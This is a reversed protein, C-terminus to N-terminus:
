PVARQPQTEANQRRTVASITSIAARRFDARLLLRNLQLAFMALSTQEGIQVRRLYFPHTGPSNVGWETTAASKFGGKALIALAAEGCEEQKGFPFAFHRVPADLREELLRKSELIEWEMEARSLRSIVPHTMTHAGFSVGGRQMARVQEWTLMRERLEDQPLAVRSELDVCCQKRREPSAGRLFTIIEVAAQMRAAFSQLSFVKPEDLQIEFTDGPAVRLALFVRDYWAVEGSEVCKGTLFVTAPVAYKQLVPFAETYLGRYGDDFTIAVAPEVTRPGEMEEMLQDLSILRFRKKLYRMQAEFLDTPLQSYLPVGGIGVRHYCLIAFRPTYRRQVRPLLGTPNSDFELFRALSTALRLAGVDYLGQALWAKWGDGTPAVPFDAMLKNEEASV